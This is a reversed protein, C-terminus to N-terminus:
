GDFLEGNKESVGPEIRKAWIALAEEEYPDDETPPPVLKTSETKWFEMGRKLQKGRRTHHDYAYDPIEPKKRGELNPVGIAAHFHDGERSKAARCMARVATGIIMRWKGPKKQDYFEKAQRVCTDVLVIVFPDALGIDEHAIIELRNVAMSFFQKSTHGLECVMEMAEREENRRIHKQMASMVEFASLDNHTRLNMLVELESRSLSM